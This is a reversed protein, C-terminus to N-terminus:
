ATKVRCPYGVDLMDRYVKEFWKLREEQALLRRVERISAVDGSLNFGGWSLGGIVTTDDIVSAM